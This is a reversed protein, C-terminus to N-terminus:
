HIRPGQWAVWPRLAPTMWVRGDQEVLLAAVGKSALTLYAAETGLVLAAKAWAEARAASRDLVSVTVLDTVAPAGTRPDLIHHRAVGEQEWRRYDIGSTALTAAALWVWLLDEDPAGWGDPTAIAVPWGPYGPAGGGATVDGGADVLVPGMPRLLNAVAAAVLGKGIGGLDLGFATM